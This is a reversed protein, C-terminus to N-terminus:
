PTVVTGPCLVSFSCLCRQMTNSFSNRKFNKNIDMGDPELAAILVYQFLCHLCYMPLPLSLACNAPDNELYKGNQGVHVDFTICATPLCSPLWLDM